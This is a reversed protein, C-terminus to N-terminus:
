TEERELSAVPVVRPGSTLIDDWDIGAMIGTTWSVKGTKGTVRHKVRSGPTM